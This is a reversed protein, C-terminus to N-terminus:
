QGVSTDSSSGEEFAWHRRGAISLWNAGGDRSILVADVLNQLSGVTGALLMTKGDASYAPAWAGPTGESSARTWSRGGDHTVVVGSNSLRWALKYAFGENADKFVPLNMLRDFQGAQWTQGLDRSELPSVLISRTCRCRLVGDGGLAISPVLGPQLAGPLDFVSSTGSDLRVHAARNSPLSLIVDQGHIMLEPPLGVSGTWFSFKVPFEGLSTWVDSGFRGRYLAVSDERQVTLLVDGADTRMLQNIVGFPLSGSVDRWHRGRDDSYRLTTGEGGALVHGAEDAVVGRLTFVVGTDIVSIGADGPTWMRITGLQGGFAFGGGVPSPHYFGGAAKKLERLRRAGQAAGGDAWGVRAPLAALEPYANAILRKATAIDPQDEWGWRVIPKGDEAKRPSYAIAGPLTIKGAEVVFDPIGEPAEAVPPGCTVYCVKAPLDRIRYRGAPLTGGFVKTSELGKTQGELFLPTSHGSVDVREVAVVPALWGAQAQSFTSPFDMTVTLAVAGESAKPRAVSQTGAQAVGTRWLSVAFCLVGFWHKM